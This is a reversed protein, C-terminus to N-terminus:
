PTRIPTPHRFTSVCCMSHRRSSITKTGFSKPRALRPTSKSVLTCFRVRRNASRTFSLTSYPSIRNVSNGLKHLDVFQSYANISIFLPDVSEGLEIKIEQGAALLTVYLSKLTARADKWLRSDYSLLTQFPSKQDPGARRLLAKAVTTVIINENDPGTVFLRSNVIDQIWTIIVGCVEECFTDHASRVSIALGIRGIIQSIRYLDEPDKSTRLIARGQLLILM